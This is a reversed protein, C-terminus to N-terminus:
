RNVSRAVVRRGRRQPHGDDHHHGDVERAGPNPRAQRAASGAGRRGTALPGTESRRRGRAPGRRGADRTGEVHRLATRLADLFARVDPSLSGTRRTSSTSAGASRSPTPSRSPPSREADSSPRWPWTRSSPERRESPGRLCLVIFISVRRRAAGIRPAGARHNRVPLLIWCHHLGVADIQVAGDLRPEALDQRWGREGKDRQELSLQTRRARREELTPDLALRREVRALTQVEQGRGARDALAVPGDRRRGLVELTPPDLQGPRGLPLHHDVREIRAGVDEHRVELVGVRRAPAVHDLTLDVQDIRDRPRDLVRIRVTADVAQVVDARGQEDAGTAPVEDLAMAADVACGHGPAQEVEAKIDEVVTAAEELAAAPGVEVQRLQLTVELRPEPLVGEDQGLVPEAERAARDAGGDQDLRDRGGELHVLNEPLEPIM